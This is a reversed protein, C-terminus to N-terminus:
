RESRTAGFDLYKLKVARDSGSFFLTSRIRFGPDIVYRRMTTSETGCGWFIKANSSIFRGSEVFGVRGMQKKIFANRWAREGDSSMWKQSIYFSWERWLSEFRM